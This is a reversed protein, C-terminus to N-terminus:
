RAGDDVRTEGPNMLWLDRQDLRAESWERQTLFPPEGLPEDTLIFTGWHSPIMVMRRGSSVGAMERYASVAEAPDMHVHRMFWRPDYAGVPLIVADFPGHREAIRAFEPHLATDGAFFIRRNESAITWGCWLTNNRSLSRGSFHRAPTCSVNFRPGDVTEWWDMETVDRVRRRLLWRGTRLPTFWRADPYSRALTRVTPRDLHDYHDHSILIVDIHPLLGLPIGPARIRRPGIWPIPSARESWIPDTLICVGGMQILFTSHGIWTVAFGGPSPAGPVATAPPVIPLPPPASGPRPARIRDIQWRAFGGMGHLKSGPWPNRFRGNAHHASSSQTDTPM